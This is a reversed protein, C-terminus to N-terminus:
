LEEVVSVNKNDTEEHIFESIATKKQTETARQAFTPYSAGQSTPVVWAVGAEALFVADEFVIGLTGYNGGGFLCKVALSNRCLERHAHYLKSYDPRGEIETLRQYKFRAKVDAEQVEPVRPIYVDLGAGAVIVNIPPPLPPPVASGPPNAPPPKSLAVRTDARLVRQPTVAM